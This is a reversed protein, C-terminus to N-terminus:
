KVKSEKSKGRGTKKASDEDVAKPWGNKLDIRIKEKKVELIEKPIIENMGRDKKM